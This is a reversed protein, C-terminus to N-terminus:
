IFRRRLKGCLFDIIGVAVIIIIMMTCVERFLYGNLKDFILFGIGGAGVFGLIAASRVNSEFRLLSYSVFGPMVQPLVSFAITQDVGAGTSALAEIQGGEVAEIQESFVKGLIGFTHIWLALIGAFPGLGIVAVFILAMVFENFGRCADLFRRVGFICFNRAAHATKGDGSVILALTNQAALLSVPIACIVALLTGWIAIAVTELLAVLYGKIKPWASEPPFYGGRKEDKAAHYAKERLRVKEEDTMEALFKAVLEDNEKFKETLGPQEEIPISRYKNDQYARARGQAEIEPARERQEEIYDRDQQSLARGFLYESANGRNEWLKAPSMGCWAYTWILLTVSVLWVLTTTYEGRLTWPPRLDELSDIKRGTSCGGAEPKVARPVTDTPRFLNAFFLCGLGLVMGYFGVAVDGLRNLIITADNHLVRLHFGTEHSRIFAMSGSDDNFVVSLFLTLVFVGSLGISLYPLPRRREKRVIDYLGYIAIAPLIILYPHGIRTIAFGTLGTSFSGAWPLFFGVM